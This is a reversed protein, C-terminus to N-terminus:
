KEKNYVHKSLNKKSEEYCAVLSVNKRGRKMEGVKRQARHKFGHSSFTLWCFLVNRALIAFTERSNGEVERREENAEEREGGRESEEKRERKSM